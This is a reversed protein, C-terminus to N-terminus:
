HQDRWGAVRKGTVCRLNNRSQVEFVYLIAAEAFDPFIGRGELCKATFIPHLRRAFGTIAALLIKAAAAALGQEEGTVGRGGVRDAGQGGRAL